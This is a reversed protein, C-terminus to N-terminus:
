HGRDGHATDSDADTDNALVGGDADVVLQEDENVSYSDAVAVPVANVKITVTAETSDGFKDALTYTFSDTGRYGTTPTYLSRVM